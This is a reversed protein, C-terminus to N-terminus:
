LEIISPPIIPQCPDIHCVKDFGDREIDEAMEYYLEHDGRIGMESYGESDPKTFFWRVCMDISIIFQWCVVCDAGLGKLKEIMAVREGSFGNWYDLILKSRKSSSFFKSIREHLVEIAIYHGGEYPNLSTSGFLEVLIADRSIVEIEPYLSAVKKVFETKGSGRPGSTLYVIKM